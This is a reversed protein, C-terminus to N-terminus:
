YYKTRRGFLHFLILEPARGWVGFNIANLSGAYCLLNIYKHFSRLM